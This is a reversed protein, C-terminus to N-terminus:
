SQDCFEGALIQKRLIDEKVLINKWEKITYERVTNPKTVLYHHSEYLCITNYNRLIREIFAYYVPKMTELSPGSYKVYGSKNVKITHCALKDQGTSRSRKIYVKKITVGSTTKMNTYSCIFPEHNMVRSLEVQNIPYGLNFLINAMECTYEEEALSGQYLDCDLSLLFSLFKPLSDGQCDRSYKRLIRLIESDSNDYIELQVDDAVGAILDNCVIQAKDHNDRLFRIDAQTKCLHDLVYKVAEHAIEYSTPGCLEITKSLKVSIVRFSTGIDILISHPFKNVKLSRSIGRLQNKWRMSLITGPINLSAPFVVKGQKKKFTQLAQHEAETITNMDITPLLTFLADLNIDTIDYQVIMTMTNPKLTDFDVVPPYDMTKVVKSKRSINILRKQKM